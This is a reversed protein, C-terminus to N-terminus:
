GEARQQLVWGLWFVAVGIGLGGFSYTMAIAGDTDTSLLFGTIPIVLGVVQIGRALSRM